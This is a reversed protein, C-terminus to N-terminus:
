ASRRSPEAATGLMHSVYPDAAAAPYFALLDIISQRVDASLGIGRGAVGTNFRTRGGQAAALAAAATAQDIDRGAARAIGMLTDVPHALMDEYRVFHADPCTRWGMYFNVYWPIALRAIARELDRDPLKRHHADFYATPLIVSEKRIHDRLSVVCDFLDRVLVVPTLRHRAILKQTPRSFRVHHQAVYAHRAHRRILSASLEQERRDYGPTLDVRRFGPLAAIAGSLFTSGSKPMCALLVHPRDGALLHDLSAGIGSLIPRAKKQVNVQSEM